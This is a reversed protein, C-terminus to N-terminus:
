AYIGVRQSHPECVCGQLTHAGRGPECINVWFGHLGIGPESKHVRMSGFM